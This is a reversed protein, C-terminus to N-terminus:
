TFDALDGIDIGRPDQKLATDVVAAAATVLLRLDGDLRADLSVVYNDATTFVAKM